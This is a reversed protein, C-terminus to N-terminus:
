ACTMTQALGAAAARASALAMASRHKAFMVFRCLPRALQHAQEFAGVYEVLM